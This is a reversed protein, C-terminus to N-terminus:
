SGPGSSESPRSSRIIFTNIYVHLVDYCIRPVQDKNDDERAENEGKHAESSKEKEEQTM